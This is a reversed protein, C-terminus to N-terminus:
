WGIKNTIAACRLNNDPPGGGLPCSKFGLGTKPDDGRTEMGNKEL